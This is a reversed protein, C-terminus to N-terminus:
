KKKDPCVAPCKPAPVAIAVPDKTAAKATMSLSIDTLNILAARPAPPSFDKIVKKVIRIADEETLGPPPPPADKLTEKELKDLYIPLGSLTVTYNTTSFLRLLGSPHTKKTIVRSVAVVYDCKNSALIKAIADATADELNTGSGIASVRATGAKYVPRFVDRSSKFLPKSYEVAEPTVSTGTAHSPEICSPDGEIPSTCMQCGAFIMVSAAAMASMAIRKM